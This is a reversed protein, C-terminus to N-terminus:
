MKGKEKCTGLEQELSNKM